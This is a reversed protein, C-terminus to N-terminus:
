SVFSQVLGREAAEFLIVRIGNWYGGEEYKDICLWDAWDDLNGEVERGWKSEAEEKWDMVTGLQGM